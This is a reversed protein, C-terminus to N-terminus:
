QRSLEDGLVPDRLGIAAGCVLFAGYELIAIVIGHARFEGDKNKTM